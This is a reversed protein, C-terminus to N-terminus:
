GDINFEKYEQPQLPKYGSALSILVFACFSFCLFSLPSNAIMTAGILNKVNIYVRNWVTVINQMLTHRIHVFESLNNSIFSIALCYHCKFLYSGSKVSLSLFFLNYTSITPNQEKTLEDLYRSRRQVHLYLCPCRQVKTSVVNFMLSCCFM